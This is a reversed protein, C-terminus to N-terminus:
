ARKTVKAKNATYTCPSATPSKCVFPLGATSAAIAFLVVQVFSLTLTRFSHHTGSFWALRPFRSVTTLPTVNRSGLFLSINSSHLTLVIKQKTQADTHISMSVCCAPMVFAGDFSGAACYGPAFVLYSSKTAMWILFVSEM